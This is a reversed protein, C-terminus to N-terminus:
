FSFLIKYTHNLPTNSVNLLHHYFRLFWDIVTIQLHSCAHFFFFFLLIFSLLFFTVWDKPTQNLLEEQISRQTSENNWHFNFPIPTTKLSNSKPTMTKNCSSQDNHQSVSTKAKNMLPSHPTSHEEKSNLAHLCSLILHKILPDIVVLVNKEHVDM